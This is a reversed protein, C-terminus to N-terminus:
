TEPLRELPDTMPTGETHAQSEHILEALLAGMDSIPVVHDAGAVAVANQPLTPVVADDPHQVVALGGAARIAMLGAVGDAMGGSLIVGIVPPGYARAATRFLPDIAPRHGNERPGRDLWVRGPGLHLHVDPPGVYIHGPYVEAGSVAHQALLPGSRS